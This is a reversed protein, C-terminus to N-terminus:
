LPWQDYCKYTKNSGVYNTGTYFYKNEYPPAYNKCYVTQNYAVIIRNVGSAPCGPNTSLFTGEGLGLYRHNGNECVIHIDRTYGSDDSAHTVSTGWAAAAPAPAVVKVVPNSDPTAAPMAATGATLVATLLLTLAALLIKIKNKM